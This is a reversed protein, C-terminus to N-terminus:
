SFRKGTLDACIQNVGSQTKTWTGGSVSENQFVVSGKTNTNIHTWLNDAQSFSIESVVGTNGGTGHSHHSKLVYRFQCLTPLILSYALCLVLLINLM